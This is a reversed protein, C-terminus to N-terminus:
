EFPTMPAKKKGSKDEIGHPMWDEDMPGIYGREQGSSADPHDVYHQIAKLIEDQDVRGKFEGALEGRVYIRVNPVQPINLRKLLAGNSEAVVKAFLVKAPLQRITYELDHSKKKSATSLKNEIVVVVIRGPENIVLEFEDGDITRVEAHDGRMVMREIGNAAVKVISLTTERLGKSVALVVSGAILMIYLISKM